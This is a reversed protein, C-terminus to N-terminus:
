PVAVRAPEFQRELRAYAASARIPQLSPDTRVTDRWFAAREDEPVRLLALRYSAADRELQALFFETLKM